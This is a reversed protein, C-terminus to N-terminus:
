KTPLSLWIYSISSGFAFSEGIARRLVSIRWLSSFISFSTAVYMPLFSAMSLAGFFPKMNSSSRSFKRIRKDFGNPSLTSLVPESFPFSPLRLPSKTIVNCSGIICPLGGFITISAFVIFLTLNVVFLRSPSSLSAICFRSASKAIATVSEGM